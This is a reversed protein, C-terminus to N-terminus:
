LECTCDIVTDAELTDVDLTDVLVSDEATEVTAPATQGVCSAVAIAAVIFLIKKM